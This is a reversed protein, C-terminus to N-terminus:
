SMNSTSSEATHYRGERKTIIRLLIHLIPSINTTSIHCISKETLCYQRGNKEYVFILLSSTITSLPYYDFNMPCVHSQTWYNKRFLLHFNDRSEPPTSHDIWPSRVDNKKNFITRISASTEALGTRKPSRTKCFPRFM